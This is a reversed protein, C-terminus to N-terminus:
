FLMNGFGEYPGVVALGVGFVFVNQQCDRMPGGKISLRLTSFM